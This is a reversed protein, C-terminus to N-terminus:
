LAEMRVKIGMSELFLGQPIPGNSVVKKNKKAIESIQQFNVYATLDLTGINRFITPWDKILKHEKIGKSYFSM